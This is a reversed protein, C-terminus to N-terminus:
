LCLSISMKSTNDLVLNLNNRSFDQNMSCYNVNVTELQAKPFMQFEQKLNVLNPGITMQCVDGLVRAKQFSLTKPYSPVQTCYQMQEVNIGLFVGM